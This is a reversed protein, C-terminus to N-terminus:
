KKDFEFYFMVVIAFHLKLLSRNKGCKRRDSQVVKGGIALVVPLEGFAAFKAFSFARKNCLATILRM